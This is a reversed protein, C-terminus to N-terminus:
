LLPAKGNSSGGNKDKILEEAVEKGLTTLNFSTEEDDSFEILGKAKLSLLTEDVIVETIADSVEDDTFPGSYLKEAKLKRLASVVHHWEIGQEKDVVENPPMADAKSDDWFWGHEDDGDISDKWNPAYEPFEYNDM